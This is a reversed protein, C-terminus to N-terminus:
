AAARFYTHLHLAVKIISSPSQNNNDSALTLADVAYNNSSRQLSNLFTIVSKYPGSITADIAIEKMGRSQVESPKFSIDEMLVGSKQATAGLEARVGSFGTSAPLLSKEFHDCAKQTNPVDDRIGQARKIDAKLIEQRKVDAQFARETYRPTVSLQWSYYGLAADALLLVTVTGLILNKRFTFDRAM